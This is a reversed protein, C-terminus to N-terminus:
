KPQLVQRTPFSPFMVLWVEMSECKQTAPSDIYYSFTIGDAPAAESEEEGLVATVALFYDDSQDSLSSM